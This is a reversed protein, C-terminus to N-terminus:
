MLLCVVHVFSSTWAIVEPPFLETYEPQEKESKAHSGSVSVSNSLSNPIHYGKNAVSGFASCPYGRCIGPNDTRLVRKILFSFVRIRGHIKYLKEHLAHVLSQDKEKAPSRSPSLTSKSSEEQELYQPIGTIAVALVYTWCAMDVYDTGEHIEFKGAPRPSDQTSIGLM